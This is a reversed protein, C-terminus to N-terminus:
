KNYLEIIKKAASDPSLKNLAVKKSLIKMQKKVDPKNNMVNIIRNQVESEFWHV